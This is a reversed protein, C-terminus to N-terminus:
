GTPTAERASVARRSPPPPPALPATGDQQQPRAASRDSVARRLVPSAEPISEIRIEKDNEYVRLRCRRRPQQQQQLMEDVDVGDSEVKESSTSDVATTAEGEESQREAAELVSEVPEDPKM